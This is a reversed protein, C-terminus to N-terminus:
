TSQGIQRKALIIAKKVIKRTEKPTTGTRWALFEFLIPDRQDLGSTLRAFDDMLATEDLIEADKATQHFVITYEGTEPLLASTEVNTCIVSEEHIKTAERLAFIPSVGSYILDGVTRRVRHPAEFFVVTRPEAAAAELWVTRARGSSPPFGLC